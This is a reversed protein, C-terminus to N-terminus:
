NESKASEALEPFALLLDSTLLEKPIQVQKLENVITQIKHDVDTKRNIYFLNDDKYRVLGGKFNGRDYRITVSLQEILQLLQELLKESDM